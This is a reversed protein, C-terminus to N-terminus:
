SVDRGLGRATALWLRRKAEYEPPLSGELAEAADLAALAAGYDEWEADGDALMLVLAVADAFEDDGVDPGPV